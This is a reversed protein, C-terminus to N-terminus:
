RVKLRELLEVDNMIKINRERCFSIVDAAYFDRDLACLVDAQGVVATYVAPDDNPDALVVPKHVFPFVIDARARLLQVHEAIDESTLQV